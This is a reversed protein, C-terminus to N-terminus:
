AKKPPQPRPLAPLLPLPPLLLGRLMSVCIPRAFASSCSTGLVSPTVNSSTAPQSAELSSSRSTTSNRFDGPLNRATPARAGRPTNSSPGGPVPLVSSALATAPSAPTGKRDADPDSNTSINTPTPADRMRSRKLCALSLEGHMMKMSSISAIPECRLGLSWCAIFIVSLWNSTSNSPKLWFSPTMTMPAVLKGSTSSLASTRGPRKSVM